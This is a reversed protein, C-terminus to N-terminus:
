FCYRFQPTIRGRANYGNKYPQNTELPNLILKTSLQNETCKQIDKSIQYFDPVACNMLFVLLFAIKKM